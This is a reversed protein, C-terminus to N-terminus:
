LVPLELFREGQAAVLHVNTDPTALHQELRQPLNTQM